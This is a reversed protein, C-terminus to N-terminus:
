VVRSSTKFAQFHLSCLRLFGFIFLRKLICLAMSSFSTFVFLLIPGNSNEFIVLLMNWGLKWCRWKRVQEWGGSDHHDHIWSWLSLGILSFPKYRSLQEGWVCFERYLLFETWQWIHVLMKSMEWTSCTRKNFHIERAFTLISANNGTTQSVALSSFPCCMCEHALFTLCM